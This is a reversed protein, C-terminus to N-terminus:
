PADPLASTRAAATSGPPLLALTLLAIPLLAFRALRGRAPLGSSRIM